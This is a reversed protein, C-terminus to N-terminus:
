RPALVFVVGIQNRNRWIVRCSRRSKDCDLLLDFEQPVPSHVEIKAGTATLNRIVCKVPAGTPWIVAAGTRWLIQAGKLTKTRPLLRRDEISKRRDEIEAAEIAAANRRDDMAAADVHAAHKPKDMQM